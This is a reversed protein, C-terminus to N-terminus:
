VTEMRLRTMMESKWKFSSLPKEYELLGGGNEENEQERCRREGEDFQLNM